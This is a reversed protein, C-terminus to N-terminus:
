ERLERVTLTYPGAMGSTYTNAYVQLPRTRSARYVIRSDTGIADDNQALRVDDPDVLLLYTDFAESRMTIVYTRGEEVSLPHPHYLSGDDLTPDGEGLVGAESLVEDGALESAAGLHYAGGEGALAANAGVFVVGSEDPIYVLRVERETGEVPQSVAVMRRDSTELFLFPAFGDGRMTLVYTEGADVHLWYRDLLSDDTYHADTAELRGDTPHDLVLAPAALTDVTLVYRGSEGASPTTAVLEVEDRDATWVIQATLGAGPADDSQEIEWSEARLVLMPDVHLSRMTFVYTTGEEVMVLHSDFFSREKPRIGDGAELVGTVPFDEALSPRRLTRMGLALLLSGFLLVTFGGLVWASRRSGPDRPRALPERPGEAEPASSPAKPRARQSLTKADTSSPADALEELASVLEDATAFRAAPAKELLRTLIARLAGPAQRSLPPPPDVAHAMLKKLALRDAFPPRGELLFYLTCGLSYLDSRADADGPRNAQEPSMYDLSGVLEDVWTHRGEEDAQTLSALGLDVVKVTGDDTLLLNSPKVDRHVIGAAHAHALGAAAQRILDAARAPELPGEARVLRSLNTGPVLEMVLYLRGDHESAHTATVVNPHPALKAQAQVERRFRAVADPEEALFPRLVKIAVDKDLVEHRARYVEGMGGAGLLEEIVHEGLRDGPELFRRAEPTSAPAAHSDAAVSEAARHLSAVLELDERLAADLDPHRALWEDADAVDGELLAEVFADLAEAIGDTM